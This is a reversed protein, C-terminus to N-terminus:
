IGLCLMPWQADKEKPNPPTRRAEPPYTDPAPASCRSGGTGVFRFGPPWRAICRVKLGYTLRMEEVFQRRPGLWKEGWRFSGFSTDWGPDLYASAITPGGLAAEGEVIAKTYLKARDDWRCGHRLAAGLPRASRLGQSLPLRVRGVDRSLRLMGRPPRRSRNPLPSARLGCNRRACDPAAGGARRFDDGRRRPASFRRRRGGRSAHFGRQVPSAGPLVQLDGARLRRPDLGLGGVGSPAVSGRSVGPQPGGSGVRGLRTAVEQFSFDDWRDKPDNARHRLPVAILRDAALDAAPQGSLDAIRRQMGIELDGLAIQKKTNNTLVVREEMVPRDTPLTFRHEVDLGSCSGASRSRREGCGHRLTKSIISWRHPSAPRRRAEGGDAAALYVCPEDAVLCDSLRDDLRARVEEGIVAVALRYASNSLVLGSAPPREFGADPPEAAAAPAAVFLGASAALCVGTPFFANSTNQKAYTAESARSSRKSGSFSASRAQAAEPGDSAHVLNM